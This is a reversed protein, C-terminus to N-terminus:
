AFYVNAAASYLYMAKALTELKEDGSNAMLKMIANATLVINGQETYVTITNDMNAAEIGAIHVVYYAGNQYTTVDFRTGGKDTDIGANNVDIPTKSLLNIELDSKVVVSYSEIGAALSTIGAVGDFDVGAVENYYGGNDKTAMDDTNYGFYTQAAAAYDLTTEALEKLNAAYDGDLIAKCYNYTNVTNITNLPADGNEKAEASAYINIVIDETAQAPAQMVSFIANGNYESSGDKVTPLTSLAITDTSFATTESANSNHNYYVTAVADDGYFHTDIYFNDSITDAVTINMGDNPAVQEDLVYGGAESDYNTRYGDAALTSVNSSFVATSTSPIIEDVQEFSGTQTADDQKVHSTVAEGNESDFTGGSITVSPVGGPFGCNDIVLADGTSVAGSATYQYDSAEGTAELTGGTITTTGSKVYVATTGSVTGGSINLDGENPHYIAINNESSVDAGDKINVEYGGYGAKGNGGIAYGDAAEVTGEVNVTTDYFETGKVVIPVHTGTAILTATEDVNLTGGDVYFGDDTTFVITGNTVTVTSGRGIYISKLENAAQNFTVTKGGLDLTVNYQKTASSFSISTSQTFDTLVKQTGTYGGYFRDVYNTFDGTYKVNGKLVTSCHFVYKGGELSYPYVVDYDPDSVAPVVNYNSVYEVNLVEGPTMTYVPQPLDNLNVLPTIVAENAAHSAAVADAFSTYSVGNVSAVPEAPAAIYYTTNITPTGTFTGGTGTFMDNLANSGMSGTGEKPISYPVSYEATQETSLKIGTCGRFMSRYCSNMLDTAPLESPTTLSTCDQFMSRYCGSALDNAWLEPATTLSTCGEFMNSYCSPALSTAWLVPATTLSTCGNFMSYYCNSALSTAPLEPAMTLSTCGYFMNNYCNSALSTAPLGPAATLSTCNNFLYAFCNADMNTYEPEAYDLLTRIDGSCAVTGQTTIVWCESTSIGTIITNGTGRLYLVNNDSSIQSTGNWITWTNTDTSYELTGNWNKKSNNTKISFSDTGTFTLYPDSAPEPTSPTVPAISGLTVNEDSVAEVIWANSPDNNYYPVFYSYCQETTRYVSMVGDNFSLTSYDNANKLLNAEYDMPGEHFELIDDWVGWKYETINFYKNGTVGSYSGSITDGVQLADINLTDGGTYDTAFATIPMMSIAMLVTLIVAIAKKTIRM